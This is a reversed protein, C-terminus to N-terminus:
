DLNKAQNEKLNPDLIRKFDKGTISKYIGEIIFSLGLMIVLVWINKPNTKATQWVLAFLAIFCVIAGIMSIFKKSQTSKALMVNSINVFAFILLFGASGMTSISSLNFFNAVLLTIATTIFLGEINQKHWVQKELVKPMEGDKAIIYSVRSAGYLTANVASATALLAAITILVFGFQGLFTKAVEALNSINGVTIMAIVIYLILVFIVATFYARPITKKRHQVQNATNAILEFGEYAVFIIMGGAILPIPSVWSAPMFNAVKITWIGAASFFLLIIIKIGVIWKEARGVARSGVVNLLTFIVIVGCICVHKMIPQIVEPFFTSGYSGFAFSYLSLMVVYSLWLLV